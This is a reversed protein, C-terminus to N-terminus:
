AAGTVRGWRHGGASEIPLLPCFAAALSLRLAIRVVRIRYPTRMSEEQQAVERFWSRL